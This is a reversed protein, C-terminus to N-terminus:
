RNRRIDRGGVYFLELYRSRLSKFSRAFFGGLIQDVDENNSCLITPLHNQFRTRLIHELSSGFIQESKESPFIWRSDFEDIVLFDKNLLYSYYGASDIESSLISAVIDAMTLYAGSYGSVLAKKLICCAAYTKGTGLNGTFMLSKGEKYVKDVDSVKEKILDKFNKDGCFDKFALDWFEVPINASAYREARSCKNACTRCGDSDCQQCAAVIDNKISDLKNNPIM